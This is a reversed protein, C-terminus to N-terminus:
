FSSVIIGESFEILHGHDGIYNRILANIEDETEEGEMDIGALKLSELLPECHYSMLWNQLSSFESFDCGTAVVDLEMEEGTDEEWEELWEAMALSGPRTWNAHEDSYFAEAIENTNLTTKM